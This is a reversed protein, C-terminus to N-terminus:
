YMKSFHMLDLPNVKVLNLPREVYQEKRCQVHNLKSGVIKKKQKQNNNSLTLKTRLTLWVWALTGKRHGRFVNSFWQNRTPKLAYPM